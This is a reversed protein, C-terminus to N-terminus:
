WADGEHVRVATLLSRDETLVRVPGQLGVTTRVGPAEASSAVSFEFEGPEVIWASEPGVFALRDAPVTFEVVHAEGPALGVRAWGLLQRMPRTVSAVLDRVYLQVVEAGVREGDNRVRCRVRLTGATDWHDATVRLDSCTFTTYSLGHGFAFLPSPDVNSVPSRGGLRPHRYSHPQGACDRPISVPLRGSPNVRGTLVGAIAPAGEEGPFFAQVVAAARDAFAGMPYPRGTVLVVVVPTGTDLVADLLAQQRGPLELAAADSGEGVTGRGFLGARDGVVAICVDASEAAAAAAAITDAADAEAEADARVACGPAHVVETGDPLQESLAALVTPLDIGIPTGPPTQVHNTFSYNGLMAEPSDANPGVVAVRAVPRLPLIGQPNSLLIVSEEALRRAVARFDPPDVDVAQANEVAEAFVGLELKHRLVLRVSRDVLEMPCAGSRVREALPALYARGAPLEIDVGASLALVAADGLDAAVDHLTHLFTVGFYDAVVVGEFGWRVRLLETLLRPDAAVPTGDIEAYSHMVARPRANKVVMEFPLAFVEAVERPGAHVPALNRGGRSNSYGLFHKVTAGPGASQLGDVYATGLVGVLYPDESICEEVRGWRPDRVVDLVPALGLHINLQRMTSGIQGAMEGVLGADWSAGWALPSPYTAAGYLQLGTLCEEHVLAPIGFRSHRVADRQLGRAFELREAVTGARSGLPRTFQGLGHELLTTDQFTDTLMEGQMPAVTEGPPGSGEPWVSALQALKEPLTMAAMIADIDCGAAWQPTTM